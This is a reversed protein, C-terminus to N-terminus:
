KKKFVKQNGYIDVFKGITSSWKAITLRGIDQSIGNEMVRFWSSLRVVDLQAGRFMWPFWAIAAASGPADPTLTVQPILRSARQLHLTTGGSSVGNKGMFYNSIPTEM